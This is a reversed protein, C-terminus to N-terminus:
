RNLFSLMKEHSAKHKNLEDIKENIRKLENSRPKNLEELRKSKSYNVDAEYASYKEKHAKINEAFLPFVLITFSGMDLFAPLSDCALDGKWVLSIGRM